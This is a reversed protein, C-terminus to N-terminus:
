KNKNNDSRKSRRRALGLLSFFASLIIIAWIANPAVSLVDVLKLSWENLAQGAKAQWDPAWFANGSLGLWLLLGGMFVFIVGAIFNNSHVSLSKGFIQFNLIRGQLLKSQALKKREYFYALIFLPFTIGFIYAFVVILAKWFAANIVALTVAGALVPACCSTAAGSFLGLLFVPWYGNADVDMRKPPSLMAIKKGAFSMVGFVLMFLGGIIYMQSHFDSFLQALASVGLGIPLLIAAIGAFFVFTMKLIKSKQKFVSALYTPLLVTVCCPAFLAVVGAIFSAIISSSFVIDM